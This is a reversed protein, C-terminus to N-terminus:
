PLGSNDRTWLSSGHRAYHGHGKSDGTGAGSILRSHSETPAVDAIAHVDITCLVSIQFCPEIIFDAMASRCLLFVILAFASIVLMVGGVIGGAIVGTYVVHRTRTILALALYWQCCIDCTLYCRFLLWLYIVPSTSTVALSSGASTPFSAFPLV